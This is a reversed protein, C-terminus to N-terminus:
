APRPFAAGAPRLPLKRHGGLVQRLGVKGAVQRQDTM